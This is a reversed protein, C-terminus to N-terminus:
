GIEDPAVQAGRIAACVLNPDLANVQVPAPQQSAIEVIKLGHKALHHILYAPTLLGEGDSVGDSIAEEIDCHIDNMSKTTVPKNGKSAPEATIEFEKMLAEIVIDRIDWSSLDGNNFENSDNWSKWVARKARAFAFADAAKKAEARLKVIDDSM